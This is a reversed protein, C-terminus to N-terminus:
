QFPGIPRNSIASNAAPVCPRRRPSRRRRRADRDGAAAVGHRGHAREAQLAAEGVDGGAAAGGHLEQLAPRQGAHLREISRRVVAAVVAPRRGSMAPLQFIYLVGACVLSKKVANPGSTAPTSSRSTRCRGAPGRGSAASTTRRHVRLDLDAGLGHVVRGLAGEGALRSAPCARPARRGRRSGRAVGLAPLVVVLVVGVQRPLDPRREVGAQPRDEAAALRELLALAALGLALDAALEVGAEGLDAGGLEGVDGDGVLGDPGDAGADRGRGLLRLLRHREAAALHALAEAVGGVAHADEVAAADLGGVDVHEHRLRVDVAHEDAAGAEVRLLEAADDRKTSGAHGCAPRRRPSRVARDDEITSSPQPTAGGPGSLATLRASVGTKSRSAAGLVRVADEVRGARGHAQRRALHAVGLDAVEVDAGAADDVLVERADVEAISSPLKKSFRTRRAPRRWPRRALAAAQVEHAQDGAAAHVASM